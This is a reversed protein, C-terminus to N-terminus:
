CGDAPEEKFIDVSPLQGRSIGSPETGSPLFSAKGTVTLQSSVFKIGYLEEVRAQLWAATTWLDSIDPFQEEGGYDAALALRLKLKHSYLQYVLQYLSDTQSTEVVNIDVLQLFYFPATKKVARCVRSFYRLPVSIKMASDGPLISYSSPEGEPLLSKVFSALEVEM